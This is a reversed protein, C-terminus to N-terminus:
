MSPLIQNLIQPVTNKILNLIVKRNVSSKIRSVKATAIEVLNIKVEVLGLEQVTKFSLLNGGNGQTVHTTAATMKHKTEQLGDFKGFLESPQTSGNGFIKHHAKTLKLSQNFKSSKIQQWSKLDILNTSAGTDILVPTKVNNLDLELRLNPAIQNM